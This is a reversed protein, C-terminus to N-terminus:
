YFSLPQPGGKARLQLVEDWFQRLKSYGVEAFWVKDRYVPQNFCNDLKWCVIRDLVKPSQEINWTIWTAWIGESSGMLRTPPYLVSGDTMLLYVGKRPGSWEITEPERAVLISDTPKWECWDRFTDFESLECQWFDCVNLDCTELQQQIQTWYYHPCIGGDIAGSKKIKRKLPCKIEIMRVGEDNSTLGDPSAGIFPIKPHVILGTEYTKLGFITEYLLTAVPEYITGWQTYKNGETPKYELAAKQDILKQRANRDYPNEGMADCSSSATILNQRADYWERTRQPISPMDLVRQLEPSIVEDQSEEFLEFISKNTM